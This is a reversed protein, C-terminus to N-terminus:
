ESFGECRDCKIYVDGNCDPCDVWGNEECDECGSGHCSSCSVSGGNCEDCAFSGENDCKNCYCWGGTDELVVYYRSDDEYNAVIGEKFYYYKLTDMYPFEFMRRREFDVKIVECEQKMGRVPEWNKDPMCIPGVHSNQSFKYACNNEEAWKIFLRSDSDQNTYIRDMFKTGDKLEWILARGSIKESPTKLILLKVNKSDTYIQFYGSCEDYKMCSNGLTGKMGNQYNDGNYYRVILSGGVLKFNESKNKNYDYQAKYANVFKEIDSTSFTREEGNVENYIEIVKKTLRGVKISSKSKINNFVGKISWHNENRIKSVKSPDLFTISQNDDGIDFYSMKLENVRSSDLNIYIDAIEYSSSGESISAMIDHLEDSLIFPFRDGISELILNEIQESIFDKYKIM